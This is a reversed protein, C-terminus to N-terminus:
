KNVLKYLFDVSKCREFPILLIIVILILIILITYSDNSCKKSETAKSNSDNLFNIYSANACMLEDSEDTCDIKGNCYSEIPVCHHNSHCEFEVDACNSPLEVADIEDDSYYYDDDASSPKRTTTTTTTISPSTSFSLKISYTENGIKKTIIRPEEVQPLISHSETFFLYFSSLVLIEFGIKDVSFLTM